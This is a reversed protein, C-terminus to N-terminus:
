LASRGRWGCLAGDACRHLLEGPACRGAWSTYHYVTSPIAKGPFREVLRDSMRDLSLLQKANDLALRRRRAEGM